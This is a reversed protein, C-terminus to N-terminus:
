KNLIIVLKDRVLNVENELSLGKFSAIESYDIGRQEFTEQFAFNMFVTEKHHHNQVLQNFESILDKTKMKKYKKVYPSVSRYNREKGERPSVYLNCVREARRFYSYSLRFLYDAIKQTLPSPEPCHHTKKAEIIKYGLENVRKIYVFCKNKLAIYDIALDEPKVALALCLDRQHHLIKVLHIDLPRIVFQLRTPLINVEKINTFIGFSELIMEMMRAMEPIRNKMDYDDFIDRMLQLESLSIKNKM